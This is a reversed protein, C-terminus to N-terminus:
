FIRSRKIGQEAGAPLITYKWVHSELKVLMKLADNMKPLRSGKRGARAGVRLVTSKWSGEVFKLRIM